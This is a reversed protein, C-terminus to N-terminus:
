GSKGTYGFLAFDAAYGSHVADRMRASFELDQRHAANTRRGRREPLQPLDFRAALWAWDADFHELRGIFDYRIASMSLGAAQLRWHPNQRAPPQACVALVFEEFSPCHDATFGAMQRPRGANRGTIIKNLYVSRLRAFPCRVFSFVFHGTLAAREQGTQEPFTVLPSCTHDHVSGQPTWDPNELEARGLALKITSCAVKPNNVYALKLRPGIHLSRAFARPALCLDAMKRLTKKFGSQPCALNM